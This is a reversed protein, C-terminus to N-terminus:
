EVHHSQFLRKVVVTAYCGPPLIFSLTVKWRGDNIEDRSSGIIELSKPVFILKRQARAFYTDRFGKLKLDAADIQERAMIQSIADSIEDQTQVFSKHPLPIVVNLLRTPVTDYFFFEGASYPCRLLNQPEVNRLVIDTAAINWLYSQYASLHLLRINHDLMEYARAFEAPHKTLFAIIKKEACHPLKKVCDRWRGWSGSIIAKVKKRRSRDDNRRQTLAIRLAGETDGKILRKAIFDIKVKGRGQEPLSGFRQSDFYNVIGSKAIQKVGREAGTVKEESLERVTILFQNGSLMKGSIPEASKGVYKLHFRSHAFGTDPGDPISIHQETRGYTDKLGCFGIQRAPVNWKAAIARVAEITGIGYKSLIYVSHTGTEQLPLNVIEKVIFDQPEQKLKM